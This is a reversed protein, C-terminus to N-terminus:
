QVVQLDNNNKIVLIYYNGDITEVDALNKVDDRAFLGTENYFKASFNGQGDGKLFCGIGSDARGTEVESVHLNGALLLDLAGDSDFDKALIGNIPSSQAEVPLSVLSFDGSGNNYLISSEFTDIQYHLANDLKDGYVDRLTAKGFDDYTPFIKALGPIQESSCERGRVPYLTDDNFYGLVIDNSGNSDFDGGYIHFPAEEKAQYKYNLGLNGLVYDQDGDSDIDVQLIRNWWGRTDQMAFTETQNEFTGDSQILFTIPMWEGTILLDVTGDSNLDTWQADTVMGLDSLEPAVRSTVDVFKGDRNELLFSKPAFPYKGPVHRSGVFLDMDGDGDFDFPKVCSGSTRIDPIREPASDFGSFGNNIYLRDRYYADGAPKENGGSAVYLDLDGDGDADFLAAAVDEQERDDRLFPLDMRGFSGDSNQLYISGEQNQAGGFYLDEQGDNDIDGKAFAPGFCSMQHPLLVQVAYDNYYSERHNFRIGARDPVEEFLFDKSDVKAVQSEAKKYKATIVQNPEVDEILQVKGDPWRIKVSNIVESKGLGFHLVDETSSQYGRTLLHENFQSGEPTTVTVQVGISHSSKGPDFDVRLWNNADAVDASNNSYLSVYDNINNVILDIDGDNDFDAYAAGNSFGEFDLGSKESYDEFQYGNKNRFMYNKLKTSGADKSHDSLLRLKENNNNELDAKTLKENYAIRYDQDSYDKFYGNSVFLDKWGDNDIDIFLSAWSWDTKHIKAMQGIERFTGNGNNIHLMNRMYQYNYGKVVFDWFRDVDMNQMQTKARYNDAALMEATIIDLLGDNNVDGADIGMSSQSMHKLSNRSVESFTGDRNNIYLRDPETHDVTVFIDPWNDQNLDCTVMGLTWGYSILGAESTADRFKGDGTNKYLHNSEGLSPNSWNQYHVAYSVFRDKPHNGVFLDLTGNRDYDFFSAMISYGNDNVGYERAAETFTLDGNNIFLQNERKAPDDYYSRCVYIDLLGDKNIDVMTAGTSWSNKSAVGATETIDEFKFGGKNIYLKNDSLNGTLYIDTLGDNNVDGVAVGGGNYVNINQLPSMLQDIQLENRFNIGSYETTVATFTKSSDMPPGPYTKTNNQSCSVLFGLILLGYIRFSM